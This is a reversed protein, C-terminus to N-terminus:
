SGTHIPPDFRTSCRDPRCCSADDLSTRHPPFYLAGLRHRSAPAGFSVVSSCCRIVREFAASVVGLPMEDSTDVGGVTPREVPQPRKSNHDPDGAM